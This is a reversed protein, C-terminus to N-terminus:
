FFRCSFLSSPKEECSTATLFYFLSLLLLYQQELVNSGCWGSLTEMIFHPLLM